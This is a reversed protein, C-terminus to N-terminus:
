SGGEIISKMRSKSANFAPRLFPKAKMKVTGYEVFRAYFVKQSGAYVRVNLKPDGKLRVVRISDRLAGTERETWDKGGVKGPRSKGVPALARAAEAVINAAAELRDMAKKEIESNALDLDLYEVRM